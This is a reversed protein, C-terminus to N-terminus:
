RPALLNDSFRRARDYWRAEVRLGAAAALRDIEAPSYKYSNETHIAEGAAFRRVLDLDRIRVMQERTSVLYMEVRGAVEDYRAVHRFAALDFDGGLERNIRALLNLNFRATVGRSDDYARELTARDKRLDIGVLLRDGEALGDRVRRLFDAAEDRHLNGVNSGLWLVLRPRDDVSRVAALGQEYEAAVAVIELAPYDALLTRTTAELMTRSIDVPVYRLSGHAALLAEILLRTKRSSGSGLEVLSIPQRFGAAITPAHEALIETEARTLYYEELACIAEFLESGAADYFYRCDLRPPQAELGARVDQAFTARSADPPPEIWRLRDNM